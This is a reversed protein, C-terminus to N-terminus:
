NSSVLAYILLVVNTDYISKRYTFPNRTKMNRRKNTYAVTEPRLRLRSHSRQTAWTSIMRASLVTFWVNALRNQKNISVFFIKMILQHHHHSHCCMLSLNHRKNTSYFPLHFAPKIQCLLFFISKLFFRMESRQKEMSEWKECEYSWRILLVSNSKEPFSSIKRSYETIRHGMTSRSWWIRVNFVRFCRLMSAMLFSFKSNPCM